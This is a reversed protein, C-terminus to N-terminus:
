LKRLILFKAERGEKIAKSHYKTQVYGEHSAYGENSNDLFGLSIAISLVDKTYDEIDSGFIFEGEPKLLNKLITIREIQGFRRKKQKTKPWPDPFLLYIKDLSSEPINKLILDADDPWLKFNTIENEEALKLCNAIGNLYPECGIFFKDPSLKCQNIFHEAMGIGIELIVDRNKALHEIPIDSNVLFAPLKEAMIKQQSESLRKGIRRAFSRINKNM